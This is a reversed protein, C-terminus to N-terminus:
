NSLAKVHHQLNLFSVAGRTGPAGRAGAPASIKKVKLLSYENFLQLLLTGFLFDAL